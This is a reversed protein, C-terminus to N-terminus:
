YLILISYSELGSNIYILLVLKVPFIFCVFHWAKNEGFFFYVLFDFHRSCKYNVSYRKTIQIFIEASTMQFIKEKKKM